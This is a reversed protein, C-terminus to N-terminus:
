KSSTSAYGQLPRRLTMAWMLAGLPTTAMRTWRPKRASGGGLARARLGANWAAQGADVRIRRADLGGMTWRGVDVGRPAPARGLFPGSPFGAGARRGPKGLRISRRQGLVRRPPAPV